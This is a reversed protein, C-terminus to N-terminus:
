NVQLEPASRICRPAEDTYLGPNTYPTSHPDPTAWNVSCSLDWNNGSNYNQNTRFPWTVFKILLSKNTFMQPRSIKCTHFSM